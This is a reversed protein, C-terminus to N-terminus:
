EFVWRAHREFDLFQVLRLEGLEVEESKLLGVEVFDVSNDRLEALAALEVEDYIIPILNLIPRLDTDGAELLLILLPELGPQLLQTDAALGIHLGILTSDLDLLKGILKRLPLQLILNIM